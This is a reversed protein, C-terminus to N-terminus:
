GPTPGRRPVTTVVVALAVACILTLGIILVGYVYGPFMGVDPFSAAFWAVAGNATAIALLLCARTVTLSRRVAAGVGGALLVVLGTLAAVFPRPDLPKPDTALRPPRQFYAGEGGRPVGLRHWAGRVDRYLVGDRGDGVFVVHGGAVAHVVVSQSSLHVAPDGLRDYDHELATRTAGTVQWATTYTAGGDHSYDVRLQGAIVRYCDVGACDAVRV